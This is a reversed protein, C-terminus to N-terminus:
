CGSLNNASYSKASGSKETIDESEDKEIARIIAEEDVPSEYAEQLQPSTTKEHKAYVGLLASLADNRM